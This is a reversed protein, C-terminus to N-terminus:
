FFSVECLAVATACFVVGLFTEWRTGPAYRDALTGILMAASVSWLGAPSLQQTAAM